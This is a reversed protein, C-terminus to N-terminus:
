TGALELVAVGPRGARVANAGATGTDLHSGVARTAARGNSFCTASQMGSTADATRSAGDCFRSGPPLM